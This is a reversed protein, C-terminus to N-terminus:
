TTAASSAAPRHPMAANILTVSTTSLSAITRPHAEQVVADRGVVQRVVVDEHHGPPRRHGRAEVDVQGRVVAAAGRDRDDDGVHGRDGPAPHGFGYGATAANGHDPLVDRQVDDALDGGPDLLSVRDVVSGECQVARGRDALRQGQQGLSRVARHDDEVVLLMGDTDDGLRVAEATSRYM